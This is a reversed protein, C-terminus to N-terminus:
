DVLYEGNKDNFEGHYLRYGDMFFGFFFGGGTLLYIIGTGIKGVYFRHLCGLSTFLSIWWLIIAFRRSKKSVKQLEEASPHQPIKFPNM